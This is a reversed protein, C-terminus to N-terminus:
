IAKMVVSYTFVFAGYPLLFPLMFRLVFVTIWLLLAVLALLHVLIVWVFFAPYVLFAGAIFKIDRSKKM